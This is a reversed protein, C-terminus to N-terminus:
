LRTSPAVMLFLAISDTTFIEEGTDLEQSAHARVWFKRGIRAVVKARIVLLGPVRVPRTYRIDLQATYPREVRGTRPLHTEIAKHMAEDFCSAIVGGHATSAHGSVGPKGLELLVIVDPPLVSPQSRLPNITPDPWPPRTTPLPSLDRRRLIFRNPITKPTALTGGFYGFRDSEGQSHKGFTEVSSSWYQPDRLLRVALPYARFPHNDSPVTSHDMGLSSLCAENRGRQM